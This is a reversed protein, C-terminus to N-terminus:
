QQQELVKVAHELARLQGMLNSSQDRTRHYSDQLKDRLCPYEALISKYTEAEGLTAIFDMRVQKLRAEINQFSGAKPSAFSGSDGRSKEIPTSLPRITPEILRLSVGAPLERVRYQADRSMHEGDREVWGLRVLRGVQKYVYRRVATQSSPLGPVYSMYEERLRTITFSSFSPTQIIEALFRDLAFTRTKM